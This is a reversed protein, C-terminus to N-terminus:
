AKKSGSAKRPTDAGEAPATRVGSRTVEVEAEDDEALAEAQSEYVARRVDETAQALREAAEAQPSGPQPLGGPTSVARGEPATALAEHAPVPDVLGGRHPFVPDFLRERELLALSEDDINDPITGGPPVYIEEPAEFAGFATRVLQTGTTRVYASADARLRRGQQKAM